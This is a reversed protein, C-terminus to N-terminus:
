QPIFVMRWDIVIQKQSKLLAKGQQGYILTQTCYQHKMIKELMWHKASLGM